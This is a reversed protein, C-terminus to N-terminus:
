QIEITIQEKALKCPLFYCKMLSNWILKSDCMRDNGNNYGVLISGDLRNTRMGPKILISDFHKVNVLRPICGKYPRAFPYKQYNSYKPSKVNMTVVYKGTPIATRIAFNQSDRYPYKGKCNTRRVAEELTDCLYVWQDEKLVELKGITYSPQCDIRTLRFQM